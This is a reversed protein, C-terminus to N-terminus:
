LDTASSANWATHGNHCFACKVHWGFKKWLRPLAFDIVNIVQSTSTITTLASIMGLTEQLCTYSLVKFQVFHETSCQLTM